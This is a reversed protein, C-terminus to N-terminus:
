QKLEEVLTLAVWGIAALTSLIILAIGLWRWGKEFLESQNM